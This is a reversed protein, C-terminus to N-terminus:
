GADPRLRLVRDDGARPDGRGDRNSTAAYLHGDPGVLTTRLRGFGGEFLREDAEVAGDRIRVRHLHEGVLTGFLLDGRWAEVPGDDPYFAAGGPAITPTYSVLPDVYAEDDSEGTVAPWGYNEGAVLRNVEDDTDPGHETAYLVGDRVALGQPNRHGYSFVASGGPNDPHPDGDLTLRLVSGALTSPDQATEADGADGATAYLADEEPRVLLRGGDHIQGAPIGDLVTEFSWDDTPDHRLVRNTSEGGADTTQYTFAVDPDDPHFALGLLGGEGRAATSDTLDAGVASGGDGVRVVRGPRETLYLTEDRFAMGWPVELDEVVSEATASRTADRPGDGDSAGDDGSAGGGGSERGADLCGALAAAAGGVTTLYARRQM